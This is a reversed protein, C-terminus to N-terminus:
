KYKKELYDAYDERIESDTLSKQNKDAAIGMLKKTWLTLDSLDRKRELGKFLMSVLQSLSIQNEEAWSKANEILSKELRLTLKTFM